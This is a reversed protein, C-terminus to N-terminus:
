FSIHIRTNVAPPNCITIIHRNKNGPRTRTRRSAAVSSEHDGSSPPALALAATRRERVDMSAQRDNEGCGNPAPRKEINSAELFGERLTRYASEISGDPPPRVHMLWPKEIQRLMQFPQRLGAIRQFRHDRRDVELREPRGQVDREAIRIARLTSPRWVIRHGHELHQDQLRLVRDGVGAHLEQDAVPQAPQPKETELQALRRRVGVGDAHEPLAQGLGARDPRQEVGEVTLQAVAAIQGHAPLQNIRGQDLCWTLM